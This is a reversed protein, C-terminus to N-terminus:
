MTSFIVTMLWHLPHLGYYSYVGFAYGTFTVLIVQLVFIIGVIFVFLWNNLIGNFVNVEDHIKRSNIFNFIQMMVFTNFVFTFHRSYNDTAELIPKYDPDGNIEVYRGSRAM